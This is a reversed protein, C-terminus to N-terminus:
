RDNSPTTREFINPLKFWSGDSKPAAYPQGQAPTQYGVPPQTLRRREPERTFTAPQETRTIGRAFGFLTKTEGLESPTLPRGLQSDGETVVPGQSRSASGRAGRRLEDPGLPRGERKAASDAGFLGRAAPRKQQDPDQPWAANAQVGAGTDPPPLERTQPIVLPSRERYDIDPRASGGGLLSRIIGEEFTPEEDDAVAPAMGAVGIIALAAALAALRM